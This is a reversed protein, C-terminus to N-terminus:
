HAPNVKEAVVLVCSSFPGFNCQMEINALWNLFSWGTKYLFNDNFHCDLIDSYLWKVYFFLFGYRRYSMIKLDAKKLIDSLEHITFHHHAPRDDFDPSSRKVLRYLFQFVRRPLLFRFNFPDLFDFLGKHPVSLILSSKSSMKSSVFSLFYEKDNVHELVELATIIDYTADEPLENVKTFTLGEDQFVGYKKQADAIATDNTDAGVTEPKGLLKWVECTIDGRDCGLDLHHKAKLATDQFVANYVIMRGSFAM